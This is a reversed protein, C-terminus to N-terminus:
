DIWFEPKTPVGGKSTCNICGENVAALQDETTKIIYVPSSLRRLVDLNYNISCDTEYYHIVRPRDLFIRKQTVSAVTFNGLVIEKNNNSNKVNGVVNYPQTSFLINETTFQENVCKWFAYAKSGISYQKLLVSYREQLRKTDTGVFHLPQHVIKPIALNTMTGTFFYNVHETKWCRYLKSYDAVTSSSNVIEVPQYEATYQYTEIMKWLFYSEKDAAQKSTTYFQYGPLTYPYEKIDISSLEAYVSDIEVPEKMEQFETFYEKEDTTIISIKYSKGFTGRIGDESGSYIGPAIETLIESIGTNEFLTVICGTCPIKKTENIDNTISLDIICPESENTIFGDVVLKPENNKNQLMVEDKCGVVVLIVFLGIVRTTM